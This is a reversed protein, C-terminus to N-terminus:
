RERDTRYLQGQSLGDGNPSRLRALADVMPKRNGHDITVDGDIVVRQPGMLRGELILAAVAQPTDMSDLLLALDVDTPPTSNGISARITALDAASITPLNALTPSATVVIPQDNPATLLEGGSYTVRWEGLSVGAIDTDGPQWFYEVIGDEPDGVVTAPADVTITTSALPRMAFRVTVDTLNLPEGDGDKLTSRIIPLTDGQKVAFVSM